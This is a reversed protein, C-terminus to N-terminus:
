NIALRVVVLVELRQVMWGIAVVGGVESEEFSRTANEERRRAWEYTRWDGIDYDITM